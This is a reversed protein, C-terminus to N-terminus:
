TLGGSQLRRMYPLTLRYKAHYARGFRPAAPSKTGNAQEAAAAAAFALLVLARTVRMTLSQPAGAPHGQAKSHPRLWHVQILQFADTAQAVEVSTGSM